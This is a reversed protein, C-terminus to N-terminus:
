GPSHGIRVDCESDLGLDVDDVVLHKVELVRDPQAAAAAADMWGLELSFFLEERLKLLRFTKQLGQSYGEPRSRLRSHANSNRRTPFPTMGSLAM